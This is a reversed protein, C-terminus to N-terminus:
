CRWWRLVRLPPDATLGTNILTGAGGPMQGTLKKWEAHPSVTSFSAGVAPLTGSATGAGIDPSSSRPARGAVVYGTVFSAIGQRGFRTRGSVANGCDSYKLCRTIILATNEVGSKCKEM